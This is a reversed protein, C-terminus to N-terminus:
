RLRPLLLYGTPRKLGDDKSIASGCPAFLHALSSNDVCHSALRAGPRKEFDGEAEGEVRLGINRRRNKWVNKGKPELTALAGLRPM